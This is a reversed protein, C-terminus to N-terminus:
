QLARCLGALLPEEQDPFVTRLDILVRNEEIRLIIPPDQLRLSSEVENASHRDSQVTILRTPLRSEPCSGGGVVSMGDSLGLLSSGPLRQRFKEVFASSRASVEDRSMSLMRLVPIEALARGTRFSTVTAELAAYILKEVRLTRM